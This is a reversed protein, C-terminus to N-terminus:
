IYPQSHRIRSPVVCEAIFTKQVRALSPRVQPNQGHIATAGRVTTNAMTSSFEACSTELRGLEGRLRRVTVRVPGPTWGFRSGARYVISPHGGKGIYSDRGGTGYAALIRMAMRLQLEYM